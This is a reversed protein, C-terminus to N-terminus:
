EAKKTAVPKPRASKRKQGPAPDVEEPKTGIYRGVAEEFPMDLFLPRELKTEKV